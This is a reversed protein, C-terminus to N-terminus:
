IMSIIEDIVEMPKKSKTIPRGIVLYDAGSLIATKPTYIRAHDDNKDTLRIGPTVFVLDSAVEKITKIDSPSCVVGDIQCSYAIQALKQVTSLRNPLNLFKLSDDSHSTLLTVGTLLALPSHEDRAQKAALIMERGGLLHINLMWIGLKYAEVCAKYVTIPIDHFKLDLFIEFNKAHLSEIIDPGLQTFLQKGIKLRCSCPDLQNCLDLVDKKNDYDLAIIIKNTNNQSV